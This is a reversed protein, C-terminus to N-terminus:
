GNADGDDLDLEVIAGIKKHMWMFALYNACDVEHNATLSAIALALMQNYMAPCNARHEWTSKGEEAKRRFRARMQETFNNLVCDFQLCQEEIWEPSPARSALTKESM